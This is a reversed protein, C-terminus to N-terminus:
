QHETEAAVSPDAPVGLGNARNVVATLSGPERSITDRFLIGARLEDVTLDDHNRSAARHVLGVLRAAFDMGKMAGGAAEESLTFYAEAEDLTFPPVTITRGTVLTLSEGGYRAVGNTTGV